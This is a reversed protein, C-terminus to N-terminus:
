DRRDRSGLVAVPQQVVSLRSEQHAPNNLLPQQCTAYCRCQRPGKHLAVLDQNTMQNAHMVIPLQPSSGKCRPFFHHDARLASTCQEGSTSAVEAQRLRRAGPRRPM